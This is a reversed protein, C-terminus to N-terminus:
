SFNFIVMAQGTGTVVATQIATDSALFLGPAFYGAIAGDAVGAVLARNKLANMTEDLTLANTLGIDTCPPPAVNAETGSLYEASVYLIPTIPLYEYGNNSATVTVKIYRENTALGFVATRANANYSVLSLHCFIKEREDYFRCVVTMHSDYCAKVDSFILGSQIQGAKGISFSVRGVATDTRVSEHILYEQNRDMSYTEVSTANQLRGSAVDGMLYEVPVDMYGFIRFIVYKGSNYAEEVQAFTKNPKLTTFDLATEPTCEVIMIESEPFNIFKDPIKHAVEGEGEIKLTVSTSGDLAALVATIETNGEVGDPTVAIFFPEGTSGTGMLLDMDGLGPVPPDGEDEVFEKCVTEYAVGNWYVTYTEGFVFDHKFPETIIFMGSDDILTGECEPLIEGDVVETYHTREEWKAKGEADTVLMQHPEGGTPLGTGGDGGTPIEVTVDASGDYEASVAGTLKLKSYNRARVAGVGNSVVDDKSITITMEQLGNLLNYKQSSFATFLAGSSYTGAFTYVIGDTDILLLTRGSNVAEIIENYTKDVAAHATKRVIFLEDNEANEGPKGPEGNMVDVTKTGSADTFTVRNGGTIPQVTVNPSVGDQGDQGDQGDMVNMAVAGNKDVFRVRHGGDITSVGVTPSYGDEGPDGKDGPVGKINVTPLEPMGEDNAEWSLDGAENVSPTYYREQMDALKEEAKNAATEARVADANIDEMMKDYADEKPVIPKDGTGCLISKKCPVYASTTTHLNGAFVGVRFNHVDSFVPVACENGVFPVDVHENNQTVFRVTKAEYDNWEEDFDFRVIFDSNGCIYVTDCIKTAIKERIAIDIANM